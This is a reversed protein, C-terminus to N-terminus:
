RDPTPLTFTIRTGPPHPSEEAHIEGGHSQVIHKAIALGLGTGGGQRARDSRYFREFVRSREEPAIGPGTDTISFRLWEGAPRVEIHIKGGPPTFKIANHLLNGLVRDAQQLDALAMLGPEVDTKLTLQSRSLQESYHELTREVIEQAEVPKLIFEARGSEIMVLDLLEQSIQELTDSEDNIKDLLQVGRGEAILQDRKLTDVLLRISTIPTRLEHSVNAVMDRRARGLRQLETVDQLAIAVRPHEADRLLYTRARFVAQDLVLQSEVGERTELTEDVLNEIEHHRTVAILSGGPEPQTGHHTFLRRAADNMHVINRESDLLLLVDYSAEGLGELAAARTAASRCTDLESALRAYRARFKQMRHRATQAAVFGGVLASLVAVILVVIIDTM